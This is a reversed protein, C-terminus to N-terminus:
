KSREFSERCSLLIDKVDCVGEGLIDLDNGQVVLFGEGVGSCNKVMPDAAKACWDVEDRIMSFFKAGSSGFLEEFAKSDFM